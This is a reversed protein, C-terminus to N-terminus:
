VAAGRPVLTRLSLDKISSELPMLTMLLHSWIRRSAVGTCWSATPVRAPQDYMTPMCSFRLGNRHLIFQFQQLVIGALYLADALCQVKRGFYSGCGQEIQLPRVESEAGEVVVGLVDHQGADVQSSLNTAM